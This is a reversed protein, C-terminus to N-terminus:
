RRHKGSLFLPFLLLSSLSIYSIKLSKKTEQHNFTLLKLFILVYMRWAQIETMKDNTIKKIYKTQQFIVIQKTCGSYKTYSDM